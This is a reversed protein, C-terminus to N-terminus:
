RFISHIIEDLEDRNVPKPLYYDFGENLYAEKKNLGVNATFAIIPPLKYDELKRLVHLTEIGTKGTMIDDIFIADYKDDAKISNICDRGNTLFVIEFDYKELQKKIAKRNLEDDEVVLIKFKSYDVEGSNKEIEESLNGIPTADIVKQNLDIHVVTGVNIDSEIYFNGGLSQVLSKVVFLNVESDDMVNENEDYISSDSELLKKKINEDLGSGSDSIIFHITYNNAEKTSSISLSIKGVETSKIAFSITDSLAQYLKSSDGFLVSPLFEDLKIIFRVPKNELKKNAYASLGGVLDKIQYKNEYVNIQENDMKSVNVIDNVIEILNNGKDIISDMCSKMENVDFKDMNELEDSICMISNVPSEMKIAMNYLAENKIQGSKNIENQSNNTEELLAIDPNESFFYMIFLFLTYGVGSFSINMFLYQIIWFIIVVIVIGFLTVVDNRRTTNKINKIAYYLAIVIYIGAFVMSSILVIIPFYEINNLDTNSALNAKVIIIYLSALFYLVSIIKTVVNYTFADKIKTSHFPAFIMITYVSSFCYWITYGIFHSKIILTLLFHPFAFQLGLAMLIETVLNFLGLYLMIKYLKNRVGNFQNKINYYFILLILLPISSLTLFCGFLNASM